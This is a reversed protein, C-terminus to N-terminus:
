VINLRKVARETPVVVAWDKIKRHTDYIEEPNYWTAKSGNVKDACMEM